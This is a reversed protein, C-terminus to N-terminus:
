VNINGKATTVSKRTHMSSQIFNYFVLKEWLIKTDIKSDNRFLARNLYYFIRTYEYDKELAINSHIIRTFTPKNNEDISTQNDHQYHSEGIILVKKDSTFYDKGIFPLWKLEAIEGFEM